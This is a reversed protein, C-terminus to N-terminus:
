SRVLEVPVWSRLDEVSIPYGQEGVVALVPHDSCGWARFTVRGAPLDVTGVADIHVEDSVSRWAELSITQDFTGAWSVLGAALTELDSDDLRVMIEAGSYTATRIDASRPAPLEHVTTHTVLYSALDVLERVDIM